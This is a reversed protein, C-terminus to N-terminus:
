IFMEPVLTLFVQCHCHANLGIIHFGPLLHHVGSLSSVIGLAYSIMNIMSTMYKSSSLGMIKLALIPWQKGLIGYGIRPCEACVHPIVLDNNFAHPIM